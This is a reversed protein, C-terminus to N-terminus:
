QAELKSNPCFIPCPLSVTLRKARSKPHPQDSAAVARWHRDSCSERGRWNGLFATLRNEPVGPAPAPSEM